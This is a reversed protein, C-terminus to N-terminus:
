AEGVTENDEDDSGEDDENAIAASPRMNRSDSTSNGRGSISSHSTNGDRAVSSEPQRRTSTGMRHRSGRHTNNTSLNTSRSTSRQDTLHTAQYVQDRETGNQVSQQTAQHTNTTTTFDLQTPYLYPAPMQASGALIQRQM